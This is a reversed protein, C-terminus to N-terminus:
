ADGAAFEGRTFTAGDDSIVSTHDKNAGADDYVHIRTATTEIKNRLFKYLYDLKTMADPNVPPAVDGPETRADDLMALIADLILDLRGGNVLDTQLENTDILIADIDDQISVLGHDGNVIAFSDGTQVTGLDAVITYDASPLSRANFEAVTPVDKILTDLTTGTDTLIADIDTGIQADLDLGGADSIPLGGAADAAANPLATMGMRVTDYPDYDVLTHYNGIVIMGTVTGGIAVGDSGAAWALDPLDLRYYGDDIHEIGGDAHAADAGALAAEVIAVRLGGERRYWLDIGATDHEVAEEPLFTTSDLIRIVTSKDTSGKKIPRGM